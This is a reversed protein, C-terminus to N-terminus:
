NGQLHLSISAFLVKEINETDFLRLHSIVEPTLRYNQCLVRACFNGIEGFDYTDTETDIIRSFWEQSELWLDHYQRQVEFKWSGDDALIMDKPLENIEPIRWQNGDGLQLMPGRKAYPRQLDGPTIPSDNWFGVWYRGAELSDRPVAPVWTQRQPQYGIGAHGPKQWAIFVGLDRSEDPGEQGSMFDAGSALDPLGVDVLMQPNQGTAKPIFIQYHM